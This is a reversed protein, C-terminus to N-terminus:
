DAGAPSKTKGEPIMRETLSLPIIKSVMRLLLSLTSSYFTGPLSKPGKRSKSLQDFGDCLLFLRALPTTRHAVSNCKKWTVM